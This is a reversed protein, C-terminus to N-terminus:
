FTGPKTLDTSLYYILPVLLFCIENTKEEDFKGQEWWRRFWRRPSPNTQTGFVFDQGYMVMKKLLFAPTGGYQSFTLLKLNGTYKLYTGNQFQEIVQLIPHFKWWGPFPDRFLHIKSALIWWCITESIDLFGGAKKQAHQASFIPSIFCWFWLRVNNYLLCPLFRWLHTAQTSIPHLRIGVFRPFLWLAEAVKITEVDTKSVSNGKVSVM